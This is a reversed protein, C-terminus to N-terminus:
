EHKATRRRSACRNAYSFVPAPQRSQQKQGPQRGVTFHKEQCGGKMSRNDPFKFISVIFVLRGPLVLKTRRARNGFRVLSGFHVLRVDRCSCISVSGRLLVTFSIAM